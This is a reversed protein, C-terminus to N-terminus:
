SWAHTAPHPDTQSVHFLNADGTSLKTEQTASHFGPAAARCNCHVQGPTFSSAPYLVRTYPGKWADLKTM